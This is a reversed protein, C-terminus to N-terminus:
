QKNNEYDYVQELNFRLLMYILHMPDSGNDIILVNEPTTKIVPNTAQIKITGDDTISIKMGHDEVWQIKKDSRKHPPLLFDNEPITIRMSHSLGSRKDLFIVQYEFQDTPLGNSM